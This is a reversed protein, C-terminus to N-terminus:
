LKFSVNSTRDNRMATGGPEKRDDFPRDLAKSRLLVLHLESSRGMPHNTSPYSRQLLVYICQARPSKKDIQLSIQFYSTHDSRASDDRQCVFSFKSVGQYGCKDGGHDFRCDVLM